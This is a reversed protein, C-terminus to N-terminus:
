RDFRRFRSPMEPFFAFLGGRKKRASHDQRYGPLGLIGIAGQDPIILPSNNEGRKLRAPALSLLHRRKQLAFKKLSSGTKETPRKLCFMSRRGHRHPSPKALM